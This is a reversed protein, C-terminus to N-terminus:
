SDTKKHKKPKPVYKKKVWKTLSDFLENGSVNAVALVVGREKSTLEKVYSSMFAFELTDIYLNGKIYEKTLSDTPLFPFHRFLIGNAWAFGSYKGAPTAMSMAEVFADVEPYQFCSRIIVKKYPELSIETM